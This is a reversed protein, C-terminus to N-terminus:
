DLRKGNDMDLLKNTPLELNEARPIALAGAGNVIQQPGDGNNIQQSGNAYNAQRVFVPRPNKMESLTELAARCQGQAKLALRMYTDTAGVSTYMNAAAVRAFKTFMVELAMAQALLMEEAQGLNGSKVTTFRREMALVMDVLGDTPKEREERTFESVVMSNTFSSSLIAGAIKQGKTEKIRRPETKVAPPPRQEVKSMAAQAERDAGGPGANSPPQSEDKTQSRLTRAPGSRRSPAPRAVASLRPQFQNHQM